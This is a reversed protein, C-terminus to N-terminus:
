SQATRRLRRRSRRFHPPITQDGVGHIREGFADANLQTPSGDSGSQVTSDIYGKCPAGLLRSRMATTRTQLPFPMSLQRTHPGQSRRRRRRRPDAARQRPLPQRGVQAAGHVARVGGAGAGASGSCANSVCRFTVKRGANEGLFCEYGNGRYGADLSCRLASTWVSNNPNPLRLSQEPQHLCECPRIHDPMHWLGGIPTRQQQQRVFSYTCPKLQFIFFQM